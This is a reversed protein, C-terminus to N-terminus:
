QTSQGNKEWFDLMESLLENLKMDANLAAQQYRKKFSKTVKFSLPVLPQRSCTDEDSDVVPHDPTHIPADSDIIATVKSSLDNEQFEAYQHILNYFIRLYLIATKRFYTLLANSNKIM